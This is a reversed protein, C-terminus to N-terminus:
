LSELWRGTATSSVITKSTVQTKESSKIEKKNSASGGGGVGGKKNVVM